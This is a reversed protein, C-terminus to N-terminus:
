EAGFHQHFIRTNTYSNAQSRPLQYVDLSMPIHAQGDRRRAEVMFNAIVKAEEINRVGYVSVEATVYAWNGDSWISRQGCHDLGGRKYPEGQCVFEDFGTLKLQRAQGPTNAVYYFYYFRAASASILLLLLMWVARRVRKQQVTTSQHEKLFRAIRKALFYLYVLVFIVGLPVPIMLAILVVVAGGIGWGIPILFRDISNTM